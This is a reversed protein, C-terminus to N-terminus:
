NILAEAIRAAQCNTNICPRRHPRPLALRVQNGTGAAAICPQSQAAQFSKHIARKARCRRQEKLRKRIRWSRGSQHGVVIDGFALQLLVDAVRVSGTKLTRYVRDAVLSVVYYEIVEFCRLSGISRSIAPESDLM